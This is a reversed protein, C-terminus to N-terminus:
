KGKRKGKEDEETEPAPPAPEPTEAKSSVWEGSLIGKEVFADLEAQSYMGALEDPDKITRYKGADDSLGIGRIVERTDKAM